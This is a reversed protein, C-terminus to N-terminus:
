KGIYKELLALIKKNAELINAENYFGHGEKEKVLWEYEHNNKELAERLKEAHIIPARQDEEGHILFVPAKLKDVHYVPSQAIQSVVDTGLTKDLYSDGWKIEKIDGESYLMPLDYVGVYGIACKFLEPENISSQLASYGGFSAGFICIKDKNSIGELIAYNTASM